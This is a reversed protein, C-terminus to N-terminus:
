LACTRMAQRWTLMIAPGHMGTSGRSNGGGSVNDIDLVRQQAIPAMSSLLQGSLTTREVHGSLFATNFEMKLLPDDLGLSAPAGAAGAASGDGGPTFPM